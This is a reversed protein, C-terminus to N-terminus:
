DAPVLRGERISVVFHQRKGDGYADIRVPGQVGDFSGLALVAKRVGERTADRRLAEALLHLADFAMVSAFDVPRGFRELYAQKFAAFRPSPDSLDVKIVFIAGEVARGGNVLADNTFGWEAGFIPVNSRLRVQQCFAATDLANAVIAVGDAGGSLAREALAGWSPVQGATFPLPRVAGGLGDFAAQFAEHWAQTYARNSLDFVVTIKKALHHSSVYDALVKGSETTSPHMMVFWDDKELFASSSVTPSVMLVHERNVIPLTVEAMSSTAHGIIAVVGAQILEEVARRAMAPDQGDDRVLLEIPRGNVGGAANVQKLALEVGNRSSLGLDYHRGSLGTVMGVKIPAPKSCSAAALAALALALRM